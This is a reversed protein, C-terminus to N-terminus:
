RTGRVLKIVGLLGNPLMLLVVLAIVAVGLESLRGFPRLYEGLVVLFVGGLAPGIITRRGGIIAAIIIQALLLM